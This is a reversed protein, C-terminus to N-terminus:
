RICPEVEHDCIERWACQRRLRFLEQPDEQAQVGYQKELQDIVYAVIRDDWCKEGFRDDGTTSLVRLQQDAVDILSADFSAAGYRVVLVRKPTSLRLPNLRGHLFGFYAAHATASNIPKLIEIGAM